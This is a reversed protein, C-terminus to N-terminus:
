CGTASPQEEVEVLAVRRFSKVPPSARSVWIVAGDFERLLREVLAVEGHELAVDGQNVLIVRADALRARVIGFVLQRAATVQRDSESVRHDLGGPFENILEAVSFQEIFADLDDAKARDVGYTLNSRLSGQFLELESSIMAIHRRTDRRHLERLEIGDLTVRGATPQLVGAALQLLALVKRQSSDALWVRDGPGVELNANAIQDRYAAQHIRLYGVAQGLRKSHSSSGKRRGVPRLALFRSQKEISIRAGTWYEFARTLDQVKPSLLGALLMAAVVAGPTVLSFGALAAGVFFAGLSAVAAGAESVARLAGVIGARSVSAKALQNSKGALIQRETKTDGISEITALRGLREQAHKLVRTRRSRVRRTSKDLAPGLAIASVGTMLVSAAIVMGIFPDVFMLAALTICISIAAVLGRSLGRSIWLRIPSLDGTFRLLVASRSTQAMGEEGLRLAHRFVAVRVAHVYSQALREGELFERWRLVASLGLAGLALLATGLAATGGAGAGLLQDLAQKVSLALVVALVSQLLGIGALVAFGRRRRGRLLLPLRWSAAADGRPTLLMRRWGELIM